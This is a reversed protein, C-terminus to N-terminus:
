GLWTEEAHKVARIITGAIGVPDNQIDTEWFRLVTWGAQKLLNNNVRDRERNKEIKELWYRSNSGRSLKVSLQRWNRGHWFDGDCFM